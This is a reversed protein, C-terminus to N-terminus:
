GPIKQDNLLHVMGIVRQINSVREFQDNENDMADLEDMFANISM